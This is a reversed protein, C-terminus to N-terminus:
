KEKSIVLHSKRCRSKFNEKTSEVCEKAIKEMGKERIEPVKHNKVNHDRIFNGEDEDIDRIGVYVIDNFDVKGEYGGVNRLKNWDPDYKVFDEKMSARLPMGHIHGSGTHEYSNIDPHADFWVVGVRKGKCVGALSGIALAHDGGLVVPHINESVTSTVIKALSECGALVGNFFLM